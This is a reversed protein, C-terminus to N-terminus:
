AVERADVHFVELGRVLHLDLDDPSTFGILLLCVGRARAQRSDAAASASTTAGPAFADPAGSTFDDSACSPLDCSMTGICLPAKTMIRVSDTGGDACSAVLLRTSDSSLGLRMWRM